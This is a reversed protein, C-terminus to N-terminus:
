GLKIHSMYKYFWEIVETKYKKDCKEKVIELHAAVTGPSIGLENAIEKISKGHALLYMCQYQRGTFTVNGENSHFNSKNFVEQLKSFLTESNASETDIPNSLVMYCCEANPLLKVKSNYYKYWKLYINIDSSSLTDFFGDIETSFCCGEIKNDFKEYITFGSRLNFKERYAILMPDSTKSPWIFFGIDREKINKIARHFSSNCVEGEFLAYELPDLYSDIIQLKNSTKDENLIYKGHVIRKLGMLEIMPSCLERVIPNMECNYAFTSKNKDMIKNM